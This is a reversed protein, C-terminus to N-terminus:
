EVEGAAAAAAPEDSTGRSPARSRASNLRAPVGYAVGGPPVDRTVVSGAGTRAGGGIEVPAVLMTDSGIFAGAGIVTRHKREGDFNCTITGAGINADAGVTADGLYSMHGMKVGPGLYSNKVEGFNGMHVGPGLHAGKRLHGFPGINSGEEMIAGEVVSLEVRCRDGITANRIVSGPGITCGAGIRTQGQLLTNPWLTTEAGIEVGADVYTAAPDVLTVGALMWRENIRRRMEAEAAALRGRDDVLLGELPHSIPIAEIREGQAAATAVLDTLPRGADLRQQMEDLNPWLWADQFLLVGAGAEALRRKEPTADADPRVAKVARDERLVHSYGRPDLPWFTLLTLTARSARHHEVV